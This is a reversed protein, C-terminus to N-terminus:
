PDTEGRDPEVPERDCLADAEFTVANLAAEVKTRAEELAEGKAGRPVQIPEGWVIVGRGWPKAVLFRDWSKLNRGRTISYAVPLIPVGSLRAISLIGDGLRMRPGRPGDPAIAVCDGSKLTELLARVARSGGRSSSGSVSKVGLRAMINAGLQGDPHESVLMYIDAKPDWCYPMMMMRGHWFALIFPKGEDWLRQPTEGRVVSWSGSVHVLRIFLAGLRCLLRRVAENRLLKKHPKM